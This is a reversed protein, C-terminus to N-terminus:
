TRPKAPPAADAPETLEEMRDTLHELDTKRTLDRLEDADVSTHVKLHRAVDHLIQLVATMEREALLNVQLDLHSRKDSQRALTNQSALVFLALFIAELSVVMTLFPFPFPDFMLRHFWGCNIVIWTAFWVGHALISPGSAINGSLWDSFQEIRSRAELTAREWSKIGQLNEEVAAEVQQPAGRDDQRQSGTRRTRSRSAM